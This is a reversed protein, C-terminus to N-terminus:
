NENSPIEVDTENRIPKIEGRGVLFGFATLTLFLVLRWLFDQVNDGFKTRQEKKSNQWKELTNVRYELQQNRNDLDTIHKEINEIQSSLKPIKQCEQKITNLQVQDDYSQGILSKLESKIEQIDSVQTDLRTLVVGLLRGTEKENETM